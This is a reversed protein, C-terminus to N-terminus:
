KVDDGSITLELSGISNLVLVEEPSKLATARTVKSNDQRGGEFGPIVKRRSARVHEHIEGHDGVGIDVPLTNADEVVM